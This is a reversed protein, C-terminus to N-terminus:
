PVVTDSHSRQNDAVSAVGVRAKDTGSQRLEAEAEVKILALVRSLPLRNYTDVEDQKESGLPRHVPIGVCFFNCSFDVEHSGCGRSSYRNECDAETRLKDGMCESTDDFPRRGWFDSPM